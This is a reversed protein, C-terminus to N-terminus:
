RDVEEELDSSDDSIVARHQGFIPFHADYHSIEEEPRVLFYFANLFRFLCSRPPSCVHHQFSQKVIKSFHQGYVSQV